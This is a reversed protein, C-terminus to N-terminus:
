GIRSYIVNVAGDALTILLSLLLLVAFKLSYRKLDVAREDILEGYIWLRLVSRSARMLERVAIVSIFIAGMAEPLLLIMVRLVAASGYASYLSASAAGIGFGRYVAMAIGVPQGLASLGMFYAAALFLASCVFSHKMGTLVSSEPMYYQHLWVPVDGHASAAYISGAIVGASALCCLLMTMAKRSQSSTLKDSYKM